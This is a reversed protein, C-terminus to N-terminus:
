RDNLGKGEFIRPIYKEIRSIRTKAQKPQSFHLLYGRQRGPTLAEFAVKLGDVNELVQQFEEPMPFDSMKKMEVKLGSKEVKVADLVYAMIIEKMDEIQELSTFRIQRAAQVNETQQILIKDPDKLLAGKHFLLACYGKFGHMLVVNAGHHTFCPKGWKLEETLGTQDLIDKLKLFCSQWQSQKSYFEDLSKEM